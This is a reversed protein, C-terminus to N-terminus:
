KIEKELWDLYDRNGGKIPLSIICPCSYSHLSKVKDILEPVLSEKTKAILVAENDDQIEGEWWYLSNVNEIINACGALRQRVLEKGIKRAEAKNKATIYVINM